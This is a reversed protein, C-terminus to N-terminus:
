GLNEIDDVFACALLALVRNFLYKYGIVTYLQCIMGTQYCFVTPFNYYSVTASRDTVVLASNDANYKNEQVHGFLLFEIIDHLFRLLQFREANKCPTDRM